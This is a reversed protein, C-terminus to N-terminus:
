VYLSGGYRLLQRSTKGNGGWRKIDIFWQQLEHHDDLAENLGELTLFILLFQFCSLTSLRFNLGLGEVLASELTALDRPEVYTCVLTRELWVEFDENPQGTIRAQMTQNDQSYSVESRKEEDSKRRWEKRFTLRKTTERTRDGIAKQGQKKPKAMAVHVKMGRIRRGNFMSISRWADEKKFFRV